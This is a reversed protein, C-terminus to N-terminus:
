PAPPDALLPRVRAAFREPHVLHLMHGAGERIEIRAAHTLGPLWSEYDPPPPSGHLSLLPASLRPLLAEAIATLRRNRASADRLRALGRATLRWLQEGHVPDRGAPEILADAQAQEWARAGHQKEIALEWTVLALSAGGFQDFDAVVGLVDHVSIERDGDAEM